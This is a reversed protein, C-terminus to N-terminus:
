GAASEDILRIRDAQSRRAYEVLERKAAGPNARLVDIKVSALGVVILPRSTVSVRRFREFPGRPYGRELVAGAFADLVQHALGPRRFYFDYEGQTLRPVRITPLHTQVIPEALQQQIRRGAGSSVVKTRARGKAGGGGKGSVRVERQLTAATVINARPDREGDVGYDPDEPDDDVAYGLM